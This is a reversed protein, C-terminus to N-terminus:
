NNMISNSLVSEYIKEKVSSDNIFGINAIRFEKKNNDLRIRMQILKYYGDRDFMSIDIWKSKNPFLYNIIKKM